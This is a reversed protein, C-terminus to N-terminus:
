SSEDTAGLNGGTGLLPPWYPTVTHVILHTAIAIQPTQHASSHTGLCVTVDVVTSCQCAPLPLSTPLNLYM